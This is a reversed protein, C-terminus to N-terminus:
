QGSKEEPAPFLESNAEVFVARVQKLIEQAELLGNNWDESRAELIDTLAARDKMATGKPPQEGLRTMAAVLEPYRLSLYGKELAKVGQAFDKKDAESGLGELAKAM